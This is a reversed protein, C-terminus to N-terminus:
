MRYLFMWASVEILSAIAPGSSPPVLEMSSYPARSISAHTMMTAMTRKESRAPSTSAAKSMSDLASSTLKPSVTCSMKSTAAPRTSHDTFYTRSPATTM